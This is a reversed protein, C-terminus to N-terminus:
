ARKIIVLTTPVMQGCKKELDMRSIMKLFDKIIIVMKIVTYVLDMGKVKNGNAMMFIAM